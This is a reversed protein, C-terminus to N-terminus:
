LPKLITLVRKKVDNIIDRDDENFRLLLLIVSYFGILLLFSLVLKLRWELSFNHLITLTLGASAAGGLLPKLVAANFPLIHLLRQVTILYLINLFSVSFATSAAAGVIGYRPIFIYNLILNLAFTFISYRIVLVNRGTMVLMSGVSGTAINVLQGCALIILPMSAAPFKDGFIRLINDSQLVIFLFLPLALTVCWRAVTKFMRELREMENKSYLDSILPTFIYNFSYLLSLLLMSTKVAASYIGVDESSKFFGLMLTDTWFILYTLLTFGLMPASFNILEKRNVIGSPGKMINPFIRTLFYAALAFSIFTSFLYASAIGIINWGKLLVASALVINIIPYIFNQVLATYRAIYFAQCTALLLSMLASLPIAFSLIRLILSLEQNHFIGSAIQASLIVLVASIVVGIMGSLKLAEVVTGKIRSKDQTSRYVPVYKLIGYDLGMRSLSAAITVITIGLVFEGLIEAGLYRALLIHYLYQLTGGALIGAFTIGAGLAVNTLEPHKEEENKKM